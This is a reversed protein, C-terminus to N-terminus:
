LKSGGMPTGFLANSIVFTPKWNDGKQIWVLAGHVAGADYYLFRSTNCHSLKYGLRWAATQTDSHLPGEYLDVTQCRTNATHASMCAGIPVSLRLFLASFATREGDKLDEYKIQLLSSSNQADFETM